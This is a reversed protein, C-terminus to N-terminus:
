AFCISLTDGITRRSTVYAKRVNQTATSRTAYAYLSLLFSREEWQTYTPGDCNTMFRIRQILREGNSNSLHFLGPWQLGPGGTLQKM